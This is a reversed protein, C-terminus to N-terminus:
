FDVIRGRGTKASNQQIGADPRKSKIPNFEVRSRIRKVIYPKLSLDKSFQDISKYGGIKIREAAIRKAMILGIGPLGAISDVDSNNIDVRKQNGGQSTEANGPYPAASNATLDDEAPSPQTASKIFAGCRKCYKHSEVNETGCHNCKMSFM